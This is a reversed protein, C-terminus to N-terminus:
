LGNEVLKLLLEEVLGVMFIVNEINNLKVNNEVDKVM